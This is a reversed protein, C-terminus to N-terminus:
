NTGALGRRSLVALLHSCGRLDRAFKFTVDNFSM